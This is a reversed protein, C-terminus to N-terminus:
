RQASGFTSGTQDAGITVVVNNGFAADIRCHLGLETIRGDRPHWSRGPTTPGLIPDLADITPKWLNTWNRRPGVTFALQLRVPGDPLPLAANVQDHIQQKFTSSQSSATTRITYLRDFVPRDHAPRAHEVRVSSPASTRKTAWASAFERGTRSALHTVLPFLYNDLDHHDLLPTAPPLGVDLSLLLPDALTDLRPRILREAATLFAELRVQDPHGAANWSALRPQVDLWLPDSTPAAFLLGLPAADDGIRTLNATAALDPSPRELEPPRVPASSPQPEPHPHATPDQQAPALPHPLCRGCLTAEGGLDRRAFAELQDRDGCIKAYAVTWQRRNAPTAGITSCTARHLVLYAPGPKRFTNIVFGDPHAALWGLYGADDNVFCRM